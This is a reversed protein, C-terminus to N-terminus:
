DVARVYYAIVELMRTIFPNETTIELCYWEMIEMVHMFECAVVVVVVVATYTQDSLTLSTSEIPCNM